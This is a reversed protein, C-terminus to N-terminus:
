ERQCIILIRYIRILYELIIGITMGLFAIILLLMLGLSVWGQIPARYGATYLILTLFIASLSTLFVLFSFISLGRVFRTGFLLLGSIGLMYKQTFNFKSEGKARIHRQYKVEAPRGFRSSIHGRLFLGESPLRILQTVVQNDILYFDQFGGIINDDSVSKLVKYYTRRTLNQIFSEERKEIVGAVVTSGSLWLEVFERIVEPPDQLDTQLLVFADGTSRKMLDLVTEQFNLPTVLFKVKVREDSLSWAKLTEVSGDTSMNDNVLIEFRLDMPELITLLSDLRFRLQALNANENKVPLGFTLLKM